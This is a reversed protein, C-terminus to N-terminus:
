SACPAAGRAYVVAVFRDVVDEWRCNARVWVQGIAGLQRALTPQRVLLTMAAEFQAFSSFWLGGGSRRCQDVTVACDGHVLVATGQLWAEMIVISYSELLSPMCFVDAAAYADHKQQVPVFGLDVIWPRLAPPVDLPGPGSVLLTFAHGHRAWYEQTYEMLVPFNKTFDRRGTFYVLPGELNYERRFSAGDGCATLDIGEGAVSCREDDIGALQKILAAEPESNALVHAVHGLLFRSTDYRAYPEDHLCPVLFGREAAIAAGFFSTPFAYLFFVWRRSTRERDLAELLADSGTLSRLLNLEHHAFLHLNFRRPDRRAIRPLDGITAAFRQVRVGDVESWGVPYYPETPSRADRATTTWVEVPVGAALLAGALQRAHTEAGGSTDPGYWPLVIALPEVVAPSDATM